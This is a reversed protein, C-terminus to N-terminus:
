QPRQGADRRYGRGRGGGQIYKNFDRLSEDFNLPKGRGGGHHAQRERGIHIYYPRSRDYTLMKKVVHKDAGPIKYKYVFAAELGEKPLPFEIGYLVTSIEEQKESGGGYFKAEDASFNIIMTTPRTRMCMHSALKGNKTDALDFYTYKTILKNLNIIDATHLMLEDDRSDEKETIYQALIGIERTCDLCMDYMGNLKRVTNEYQICYCVSRAMSYYFFKNEWVFNDYLIFERRSMSEFSVFVRTESSVVPAWAQTFITGKYYMFKGDLYLKVMDLGTIKKVAAFDDRMIKYIGEKKEDLLNRTPETKIGEMYPTRFKLMSWKPQLAELYLIQLAYNWIIDLDHPESDFMVTRIDSIFYLDPTKKYAAISEAVVRALDATMYDQIIYVRSDGEVIDRVLTKYEGSWFADRITTMEEMYKMDGKKMPMIIDRTLGSRFKTALMKKTVEYQHVSRSYKKRSDLQGYFTDINENNIKSTDQYVYTINDYDICHYNPDVLLFKINPFMQLIVPLHECSASGAYVVLINKNKGAMKSLFEIETLLLKRQGLHCNAKIQGADPGYPINKLDEFQIPLKTLQIDSFHKCLMQYSHLSEVVKCDKENHQQYYGSPQPISIM